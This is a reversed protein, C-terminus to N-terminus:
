RLGFWADQVEHAKEELAANPSLLGLRAGSLEGASAILSFAAVVRDREASILLTRTDTLSLRADLVDLLTRQGLRRAEITGDLVILASSVGAKASEIQAKASQLSSWATVGATTIEEFAARSDIESQILTRNQLRANAYNAGGNYVPINFQVGVSGTLTESSTSEFGDSHTASAVFDLTPGLAGDAAKSAFKQAELQARASLLAPHKQNASELVQDLTKPLLDDFEFEISLHGPESGIFQYYIAKSNRLNDVSVKYVSVANALEAQAQAVDLETGEGALKRDRAARLQSRFFTVNSSRLSALNKDRVVNMYAEAAGLLVSQETNRLNYKAAELLAQASAIENQSQMSDFLNQQLSLSASYGDETDKTTVGSQSTRTYTRTLDVEGNLSPRQAARALAVQEAAILVGERASQLTFNSDMAGQLASKLSADQAGASEGAETVLATSAFFATAVVIACGFRQAWLVSKLACLFQTARLSRLSYRHWM